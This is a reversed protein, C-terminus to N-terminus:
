TAPSMIGKMLSRPFQFMRIPIPPMAAAKMMAVKQFYGARWGERGLYLKVGGISRPRSATHPRSPTIVLRHNTWM